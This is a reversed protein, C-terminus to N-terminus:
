CSVGRKPLWAKPPKVDSTQFAFLKGYIEITGLLKRVNQGSHRHITDCIATIIVYLIRRRPCVKM